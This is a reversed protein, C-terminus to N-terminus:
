PTHAHQSQEPEIEIANITPYNAIPTFYLELLGQSTPKLHHITRIATGDQSDKLIDFDKLVTNGNCVVDFLRSGVGGPGDNMTGFWGESFYLTLSYDWGQAVPLFYHFHGYREWAYIKSNSAKPLKAPHPTRRGEHFFREPEWTKGEDDRLIAPGAVIRIPLPDDSPAPLIEIANLFSAESLFDLHIAGDALPHIGAYLKGTAMNSDGAEDVVDVDQVTGFNITYLNRKANENGGDTDAFLLQLQYAGPKVPIICQFRGKRGQQFIAPDDTGRVMQKGNLFSSGGKCFRNAAWSRGAADVMPEKADGALLRWGEPSNNTQQTRMEPKTPVSVLSRWPWLVVGAVALAAALLIALGMWLMKGPLKTVISHGAGIRQGHTLSHNLVSAGNLAVLPSSGTM